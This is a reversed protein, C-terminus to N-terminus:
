KLLAVLLIALFLILGGGALYLQLDGSGGIGPPIIPNPQPDGTSPPDVPDPDPRPDTDGSEELVSLVETGSGTFGTGTGEVTIEVDYQGPTTPADLSFTHTARNEVLGVCETVSESDGDDISVSAEYEFGANNGQSCHDDDTPSIVTAANVVEIEVDVIGGEEVETPILVQDVFLIESGGGVRVVYGDNIPDHSSVTERRATNRLRQTQATIAM